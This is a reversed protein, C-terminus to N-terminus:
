PAWSNVLYTMVPSGLHGRGRRSGPQGRADGAEEGPVGEVQLQHGPGLALLEQHAELRPVDGDLVQDLM